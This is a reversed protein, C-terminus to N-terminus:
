FTFTEKCAIFYKNSIETNTYINRLKIRLKSNCKLTLNKNIISSLEKLNKFYLACSFATERNFPVDYCIIKSDYFLMEVLSPNTGGVSHGHLYFECSERLKAVEIPNYVPNLLCLKPNNKYKVVIDMGYKSKNWNGVITYLSLNSALAGEILLELNNEPEIRCITLASGQIQDVQLRLVHNGSYSINYSKNKAFKYVFTELATNDYVVLHSFKQTIYDFTKLITKKPFSYKQRRWEVGDINVGLKKKFVSCLLYFIPFWIGGSVGLVFIYDSKAFVSIFAFLDHFISYFGNAKIPIFIRKVGNYNKHRDNPYLFTDCTVFVNNFRKALVSSCSDLFSEFGGYTNPVGASGIFSINM